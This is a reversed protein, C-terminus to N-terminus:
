SHYRRGKRMSTDLGFGSHRHDITTKYSRPHRINGEISVKKGDADLTLRDNAKLRVHVLRNYARGRGAEELNNHLIKGSM